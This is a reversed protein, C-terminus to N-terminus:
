DLRSGDGASGGTVVDHARQAQCVHVRMQFATLGSRRKEVVVKGAREGPAANIELHCLRDSHSM